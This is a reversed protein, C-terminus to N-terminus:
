STKYKSKFLESTRRKDRCSLVFETACSIISIGEEHFAQKIESLVLLETDITPVILTINNDKCIKLLFDPYSADTVKPSKFSRDSVQCAASLSPNLDSTFVECSQSLLKAKEIFEQVLEVRRGASTILINM